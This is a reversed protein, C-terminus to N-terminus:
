KTHCWRANTKWRMSIAAWSASSPTITNEPNIVAQRKATQGVM